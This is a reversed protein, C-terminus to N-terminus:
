SWKSKTFKFIVLKLSWVSPYGMIPKGRAKSYILTKVYPNLYCNGLNHWLFKLVNVESTGLSIQHTVLMSYLTAIKTEVVSDTVKATRVKPWIWILKIHHTSWKFINPGLSHDLTPKVLQGNFSSQIDEVRCKHKRLCRFNEYKDHPGPCVLFCHHKCLVLIGAM